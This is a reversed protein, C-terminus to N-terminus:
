RTRGNTLDFCPTRREFLREFFSGHKFRSSGNMTAVAAEAAAEEADADGTAGLAMLFALAVVLAVLREPPQWAPLRLRELNPLRM